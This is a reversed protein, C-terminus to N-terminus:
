PDVAGLSGCAVQLPERRFDAHVADAKHRAGEPRADLVAHPAQPLRQRGHQAPLYAPLSHKKM